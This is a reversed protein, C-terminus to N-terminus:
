PILLHSLVNQFYDVVVSPTVIYRADLTVSGKRGKQLAFRDLDFTVPDHNFFNLVDDVTIRITHAGVCLHKSLPDIQPLARM